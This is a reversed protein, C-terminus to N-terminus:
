TFHLLFIFDILDELQPNAEWTLSVAGYSIVLRLLKFFYDRKEEGAGMCLM